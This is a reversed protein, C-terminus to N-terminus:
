VSIDRIVATERQGNETIYLYIKYHGPGLMAPIDIRNDGKQLVVESGTTLYEKQTYEGVSFIKLELGANTPIGSNTITVSVNGAGYSVDGISHSICGTAISCLAM